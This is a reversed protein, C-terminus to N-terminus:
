CEGMSVAYRGWFYSREAVTCNQSGRTDCKANALAQYVHLVRLVTGSCDAPVWSVSSSQSLKADRM